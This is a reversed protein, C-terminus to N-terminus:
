SGGLILQANPIEELMRAVWATSVVGDQRRLESILPGFDVAQAQEPANPAVPTIPQPPSSSPASFGGTASGGSLGSTSASSIANAVNAGVSLIRAMEELNLPWILTQAMAVGEAISIAAKTKSIRKQTKISKDGFAGLITTASNGISSMLSLRQMAERREIESIKRQSEETNHLISQGTLQSISLKNNNYEQWFALDGNLLTQQASFFEVQTEIPTQGIPTTGEAGTGTGGVVGAAAKMRAEREARLAEIRAQAQQRSSETLSIDADRQALILDVSKQYEGLLVQYDSIASQASKGLDTDLVEQGVQKIKESVGTFIGAQELKEGWIEFPRILGNTISKVAPEFSSFNILGGFDFLGKIKQTTLEVVSAMSEITQIVIKVGAIANPVYNTFADKLNKNVDEATTGTAKLLDSYTDAAFDFLSSFERQVFSLQTKFTESIAGSALADNLDDMGTTLRNFLGSVEGSLGGLSDITGILRTFSNDLIVSSQSITANTQGFSQEVEDRYSKLANILLNTTIGGQAAFDKLEGRARGTYEAVADLIIPTQEAVSNFEEGRLAGAGLGQTLQIIANTSEQATSGSVAFAKNITETISALEGQTLALGKSSRTLRNYLIVTSELDVRSRQAVEFLTDTVATLQETDRTVLRLKNQINTWSDLYRALTRLSQATIVASIAVALKSLQFTSKKATDDIREVENNLMRANKVAGKTDVRIRIYRDTM